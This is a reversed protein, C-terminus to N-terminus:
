PADPDIGLRRLVARVMASIDSSGLEECGAHLEAVEEIATNLDEVSTGEPLSEPFYRGWNFQLRYRIADAVTEASAGSM